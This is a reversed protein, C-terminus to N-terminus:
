LAFDIKLNSFNFLSKGLNIQKSIFSKFIIILDTHSDRSASLNFNARYKISM